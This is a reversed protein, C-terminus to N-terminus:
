EIMKKIGENFTIQPKWDLREFTKQPNFYFSCSSDTKESLEIKFDIYKQIEKAVYLNSLSKGTAGLFIQNSESLAAEICLDVADHIYLYDQERKGEGYLIVKKDKKASAILFPIFSNNSIGEGYVYALRIIAYQKLSMVMFEGEIKSLGYLGPNSFSSNETIVESTNGYVNTSSVYIIKAKPYKKIYQYLNANLQLLEAHSISYNGSVYFIYNPTIESHFIENHNILIAKANIRERSKNFVAIVRINEVLLRNVLNSGLFGNAGVVLATKM